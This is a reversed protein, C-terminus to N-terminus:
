WKPMKQFFHHYICSNWFIVRFDLAFGIQSMYEPTFREFHYLRTYILESLRKELIRFFGDMHFPQKNEKLHLLKKEKFFDFHGVWFFRMKWSRWNEFNKHFKWPNTRPNTSNISAFPMSRVWGIQDHPQGVYASFFPLFHM